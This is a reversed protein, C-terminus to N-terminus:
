PLHITDKPGCYRGKTSAIFASSLEDCSQGERSPVVYAHLWNPALEATARSLQSSTTGIVPLGM